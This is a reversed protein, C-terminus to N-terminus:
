CVLTLLRQTTYQVDTLVYRARETTYIFTILASVTFRQIIHDCDVGHM